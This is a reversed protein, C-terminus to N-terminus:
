IPSKFFDFCIGEKQDKCSRLDLSFDFSKDSGVRDTSMEDLVLNFIEDFTKESQNECFNRIVVEFFDKPNEDNQQEQEVSNIFIIEQRKPKVYGIFINEIDDLLFRMERPIAALLFLVPQSM